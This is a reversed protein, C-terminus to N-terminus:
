AKESRWRKMAVAVIDPHARCLAIFHQPEVTATWLMDGWESVLAFPELSVVIAHTYRGSGCHLTHTFSDPIVVDGIKM